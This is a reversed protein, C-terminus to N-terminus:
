RCARTTGTMLTHPMLTFTTHVVFPHHIELTSSHDILPDRRPEILRCASKKLRLNFLDKYFRLSYQYMPDVLALNAIVFYIVSGRTAVVRYSERTENILKTTAEAETLRGNIATSTV